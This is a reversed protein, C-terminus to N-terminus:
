RKNIIGFIHGIAKNNDRHFYFLYSVPGSLGNLRWVTKLPYLQGLLTYGVTSILANLKFADRPCYLRPVYEIGLVKECNKDHGSSLTLYGIYTCTKQCKSTFVPLFTSWLTTRETPDFDMNFLSLRGGDSSTHFVQFLGGAKIVGMVMVFLVGLYFGLTSNDM